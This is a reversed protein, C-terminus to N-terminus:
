APVRGNSANAAPKEIHSRLYNEMFDNLRGDLVANVNGVEYDTRHDKVMQYPHLVYSRIQNGWGADVNEGKLAALEAEQKKREMEFLRAKLIQLARERNQLQSRQNQCQVVIGTPLHTM